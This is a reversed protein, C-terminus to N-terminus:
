CTNNEISLQKLKKDWFELVSQKAKQFLFIKYDCGFLFSPIKPVETTADKLYKEVMKQTTKERDQSFSHILHVVKVKRRNLPRNEHSKYRIARAIIQESNNENWTPELIFIADTGKLDLGEGGAKTIFLINIKGENYNNV